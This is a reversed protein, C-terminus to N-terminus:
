LLSEAELRARLSAPDTFLHGHMGVAEAADVNIARDDIFIADSPRVGFRRMALRYIAPDPKLMKVEGSVVIDRFLSFFHKERELFPKWFDGSFNTIAFLPTGREHLERVIDHSGAIADKITEGFRDGWARILHAYGPFRASLENAAKAFSRGGDLTEHWAFLDTEAIFRLRAENEPIQLELFSHPDWGYLVNGVDFIVVKRNM